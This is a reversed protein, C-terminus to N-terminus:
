TKLALVKVVEVQTPPQPAVRGQVAFLRTNAPVCRCGAVKWGGTRGEQLSTQPLSDRYGALMEVRTKLLDFFFNKLFRFLGAPRCVGISFRGAPRRGQSRLLLRGWILDIM